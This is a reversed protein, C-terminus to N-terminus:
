AGAVPTATLQRWIKLGQVTEAVDHVRLISAGQSLAYLGAALGGPFRKKPEPEGGFDGIFRKRSVGILLPHGLGAFRATARLLAINQVGLKAFGFGPDLAINAAAIGAAVAADRRTLLETIVDEVVDDYAAAANMTAPIGRMHMLIVPCGRLAVLGASRPDQTLGSVDNIIVAGADLAAAMTAANRTDASIVAGAGALAQIVPTIRAIEEAAPVAIANPRTSEGGIDIIDVGAELMLMGAAVASAVSAHQGGDSFSDPTVNLIGMVRPTTLDFGAWIQKAVCCDMGAPIVVCASPDFNPKGAM